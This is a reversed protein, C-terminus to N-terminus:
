WGIGIVSSVVFPTFLKTMLSELLREDLFNLRSCFLHIFPLLPPPPVRIARELKRVIVLYFVSAVRAM